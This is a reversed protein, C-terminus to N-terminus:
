SKSINDNVLETLLAEEMVVGVVVGVGVDVGVVDVVLWLLLDCVFVMLVGSRVPLLMAAVVVAVLLLLLLTLLLRNCM